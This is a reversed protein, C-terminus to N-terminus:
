QSASARSNLLMGKMLAAIFSQLLIWWFFEIFIPGSAHTEDVLPTEKQNESHAGEPISNGM